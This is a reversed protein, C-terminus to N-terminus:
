SRRRTCESVPMCSFRPSRSLFAPPPWLGIGASVFFSAAVWGIVWKADRALASSAVAAPAVGANDGNSRLLRVALTVALFLDFENLLIWGSWPAFNLLPLLAFTAPLGIGPYRWLAVAYTALGVLLWAPGLPYILAALGAGCVLLLSLVARAVGNM